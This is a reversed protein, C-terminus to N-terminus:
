MDKIATRISMQLNEANLSELRVYACNLVRALQLALNFKMFSIETDVVVFRIGCDVLSEAVSILESRPDPSAYSVNNRGDTLIVLVPKSDSSIYPKLIEYSKILGHTLPTRGGTPLESLLQYAKSVSRTLPLIEEATDKRFVVLGVDNRRQYADKLMSIIAGKVAIMRNNAGMSGSGDVLFLIKTSQRKERIKERFDSKELVVALDRHDRQIQYPAAARITACLAIDSIKEKPITYGICRGTHDSSVTKDQRGSRGKLNIKNLDPIYETPKFENGIVFVNESPESTPQSESNELPEDNNESQNTESSSETNEQSNSENEQSNNSEENEGDQPDELMPPPENDADDTRRHQLCVAVSKKLDSLDACDRGALAAFGCSAHVVSLDGRHGKVGLENCVDAIADFYGEPITVNNYESRCKILHASIDDDCYTDCFTHPSREFELRRKVIEKRQIEDEVRPMFVCIDFRDLIHESLKGEEADMTAIVMFKCSRAQSVGDREVFYKEDMSCNLVQNVVNESLLHINEILVINNEARELISKSSQLKGSCITNEFDISGFIQDETANIPLSIIHIGPIIGDLSRIITTKGSGAPGCILVSYIKDSVLACKLAEKVEECGVVASFPYRCVVPHQFDFTDM